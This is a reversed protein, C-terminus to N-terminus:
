ERPKVGTLDIYHLAELLLQRQYRRATIRVGVTLGFVFGTGILAIVTLVNM